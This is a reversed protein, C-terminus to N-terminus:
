LWPTVAAAMVATIGILGCAWSLALAPTPREFRSSTPSLPNNFFIFVGILLLGSAFLLRGNNLSILALTTLASLWLWRSSSRSSYDMANEQDTM